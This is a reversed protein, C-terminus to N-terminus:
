GLTLNRRVQESSAGGPLHCFECAQVPDSGVMVWEFVHDGSLRCAETLRDREDAQAGLTDKRKVLRQELELVRDRIDTKRM